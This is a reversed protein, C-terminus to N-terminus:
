AAASDDGSTPTAAPQGRRGALESGKMPFGFHEAFAAELSASEREGKFVRFAHSLDRGSLSAFEVFQDWTIIHKDQEAPHTM